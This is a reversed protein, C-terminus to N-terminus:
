GLRMIKKAKKLKQKFKEYVYNAHKYDSEKPRMVDTGCLEEYYNISTKTFMATMIDSRKGPLIIVCGM